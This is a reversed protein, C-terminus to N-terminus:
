SRPVKVVVIETGGQPSYVHVLAGKDPNSKELAQKAGDANTVAQRDVKVIVAGRVLGAEAAPSGSEVGLIVAGGKQVLGMAEARDETLDTLTLGAREVSVSGAERPVRIDRGTQGKGYDAPEEEITLKLTKPQGDRVIELEVPKNLPLGAVVRQLDRLDRVPTSGIGVIADEPKLGSKSAPSNPFVRAILVGHGNKLGYREAAAPSLERAGEIGLYGRKVVGNTMLQQMVSRAQNGAVAMGIGAWAGSRSKIASNVGIVQGALNVLPGGSNGPNIPADTQILDDAQRRNLGIDRGKASIIGHTVSGALGFPAGVALVRDGIEMANSDGFPLFPLPGDAKIRVIAIDTRPDTKINDSTFKRGDTLTVEVQDAGDVVHNNTVIVGQPDVIFGSGSGLNGDPPMQFGDRDQMGEFFRRFEDPIGPPLERQQGRPRQRSQVEVKKPKVKADISVVAPLVRRVVDRYSTMEAPIVVAPAPQGQAPSPEIWRGIAVGGALTVALIPWRFSRLM